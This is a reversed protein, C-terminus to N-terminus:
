LENDLVWKWKIDIKTSKKPEPQSRGLIVRKKEETFKTNKVFFTSMIPKWPQESDRKSKRDGTKQRWRKKM